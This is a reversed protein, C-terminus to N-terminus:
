FPFEDSLFSLIILIALWVVNSFINYIANILINKFSTIMNMRRKSM